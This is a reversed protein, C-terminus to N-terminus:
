DFIAALGEPGVGDKIQRLDVYLAAIGTAGILANAVQIVPLIFLSTVASGGGGATVNAVGGVMGLVMQIIIVAVLYIVALGFIRWRNGRTLEASRGFVDLIGRREVVYVPVAVCWAIALMVGPVVLLIFGLGIALGMMIGILLIPLFAYLGARLSDAISVRRGNLDSVTGHIITAQLILSALALVVGGVLGWTLRAGFDPATVGGGVMRMQLWYFIASPIGALVLALVVFPVFNRGLVQFLQQIVRGIDLAGGTAATSAATM